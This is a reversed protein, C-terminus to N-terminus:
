SISSSLAKLAESCEVTEKGSTKSCTEFEVLDLSAPPSPLALSVSDSKEKVGKVSSGGDGEGRRFSRRFIATVLPEIRDRGDPGIVASGCDIVASGCDIVASGCDNGV